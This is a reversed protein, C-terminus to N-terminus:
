NKGTLLTQPAFLYIIISVTEDQDSNKGCSM